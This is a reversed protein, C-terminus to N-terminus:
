EGSPIWNNRRPAQKTAKAKQVKAKTPKEPAVPVISHGYGDSSKALQSQAPVIAFGGRAERELAKLQKEDMGKDLLKFSLMRSANLAQIEAMARFIITESLDRNKAHKARLARMTAVWDHADVGAFRRDSSPIEIWEGDLKAEIQGIDDDSWRVQVTSSGHKLFWAALEDSHYQVHLVRIGNTQVKRTTHIGFALRKRRITPAAHLPYNGESIDLNWQELPTLGNLGEHPTNHYIDVIWLVIIQCLDDLSLCARKEGDYDGKEASNSFSRGSLDPLLMTSATRFVREITGRMSPSGGITQLAHIGLDACANTFANSKFATGNDTALVEPKGFMSWPSVAGAGNAIDGKDSVVM